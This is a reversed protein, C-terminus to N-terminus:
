IKMKIPYFGVESQRFQKQNIKFKHSFKTRPIELPIGLPTGLPIERSENSERPIERPIEADQREFQFNWSIPSQEVNWNSFKLGNVVTTTQM